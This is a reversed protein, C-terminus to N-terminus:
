GRKKMRKALNLFIPKEEKGNRSVGALIIERGAQSSRLYNRVLDSRYARVSWLAQIERRLMKRIEEPLLPLLRLSLGLRRRAVWGERPGTLYSLRLFDVTKTDAGNLRVRIEALLYWLNADAPATKLANKLNDRARALAAFAKENLGKSELLEYLALEITAKNNIITRNGPNFSLAKDLKIAANTIEAESLQGQNETIVRIDPAAGLRYYEAALRPSALMVLAIGFIAFVGYGAFGTRYRARGTM